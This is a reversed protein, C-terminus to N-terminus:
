ECIRIAAPIRETAHDRLNPCIVDAPNPGRSSCPRQPRRGAFGYGAFRPICYELVLAYMLALANDSM